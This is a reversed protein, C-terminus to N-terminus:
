AGGPAIAKGTSGNGAAARMAARAGPALTLTMRDPLRLDIRTVARDLLREEAQYASARVLAQEENREPLLLEIGGKLQLSWRRDAIRQAAEFRSAIEPFRSVLLLIERAKAAAGAGAVMPLLRFESPGIPQLERGEADILFLMGRHQWVAFPARESVRIALRDPLSRTVTATEIWPLAEIRTRAAAVDYAFLSRPAEVEIARYIDEPATHGYGSVGIENVGIGAAVVLRELGAFPASPSPLHPAALWVTGVSALM